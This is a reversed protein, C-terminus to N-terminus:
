RIPSGFCRALTKTSSFRRPMRPPVDGCGRDARRGAHSRKGPSLSYAKVNQPSLSCVLGDNTLCWTLVGLSENGGRVLYYVDHGAFRSKRVAWPKSPSVGAKAPKAPNLAPSHSVLKEIAKDVSRSGQHQGRRDHQEVGVVKAPSHLRAVHGGVVRRAEKSYHQGIADERNQLTPSAFQGPPKAAVLGARGHGRARLCTRRRCRCRGDKKPTRNKSSKAASQLAAAILNPNIRAALALTADHPIVALDDRKVPRDAIQHLLTSAIGDTELLLQSVFDERRRLQPEDGEREGSPATRVRASTSTSNAWAADSFSNRSCGFPRSHSRM